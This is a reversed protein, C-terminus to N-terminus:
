EVTLTQLPGKTMGVAFAARRILNGDEIADFRV